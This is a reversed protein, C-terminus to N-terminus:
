SHSRNPNASRNAKINKENLIKTSQQRRGKYTKKDKVEDPIDPLFIKELASEHIYVLQGRKLSGIRLRGIAVRQLKLVDNNIKEFMQRIQRNKGETIVIKYWPHDDKGRHIKELSKAAVKGDKITVGRLLRQIQTPAPERRLKVIYTKTVENSPHTIRQAFDGDNTLLILGESDFDLRGVPFVRVPVDKTYHSINPRDHPDSMTTLVGSPKFFALYLKMTVQKIPKGNVFISDSHPNVQTGLEFVKKGNVRVHGEDILRDAERRSAIGCDAILKNLRITQSRQVQKGM